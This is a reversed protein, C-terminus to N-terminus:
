KVYLSNMIIGSPLYGAVSETDLDVVTTEFSNYNVILARNVDNLYVMEKPFKGKGLNIIGTPAFNSSNFIHIENSAACLVYIKSRDKSVKIDLPKEGVDLVKEVVALANKDRLPEVPTVPAAMRGKKIRWLNILSNNLEREREERYNKIVKERDPMFNDESVNYVYLKNNQRSLVLLYNRFSVMKSINPVTGVLKTSLENYDFRYINGTIKDNYYVYKDNEAVTLNSIPYETELMREYLMDRVDLVRIIKDYDNYAFATPSANFLMMNSINSDMQLEKIYKDKFTDLVGIKNSNLCTVLIYRKNQSLVSSNYDSPLEFSKIVRGSTPQIKFLRNSQINSTYFIKDNIGVLENPLKSNVVNNSISKSSIGSEKSYVIVANETKTVPIKLDGLIVKLDYPIELKEPVVLDQPLLGMKVVLPIKDSKIITPNGNAAKSIKFLAYNDEFLIFDPEKDLASNEPITMTIKEPTRTEASYLPVVPIYQTGDPLEILGDFRVSTKPFIKTLETIIHDPLETAKAYNGVCACGTILASLIINKIIKM